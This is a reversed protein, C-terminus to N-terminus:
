KWSPLWMISEYWSDPIMYGYLIPSWYLFSAVVLAIYVIVALQGWRLEVGALKNVWSWTVPGGKQAVNGLMLAILVITFPVLATAYFFYMQRDFAALWPLFGAAFAIVPVIM